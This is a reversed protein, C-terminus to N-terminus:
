NWYDTPLTKEFTQFRVGHNELEKLIPKYISRLTPVHVGTLDITGNLIMHAGIALPLGVTKAMATKELNEGKVMMSSVIERPQGKKDAYQLQNYMVIMDKDDSRMSWKRELLSLLIQAPTAKKLGIQRHEFVGIWKLAEMEPSDISVGLHYALKLEVTDHKRYMLFSNIFKRYTMHESDDIVYTDDTMGLQVFIDWAKCFGPHRFTGRFFTPIHDLNYKSRYKLSDRNAYGELYGVGHVYVTEIRSFVKHYPIYKYEGNQIFKVGGTGALVVNKPAWTFKYHWPNDDSEPAVLGGCFTELARLDGGQEQIENVLSMCSMHDIGPDLGMENLLLVGNSKAKADLSKMKESVYSATIMDKKFSVCEEAVVDHHVAPLLSVILDADM